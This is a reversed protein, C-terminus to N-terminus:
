SPAHLKEEFMKRDEDKLENLYWGLAYDPHRQCRRQEEPVAKVAAADYWIEWRDNGNDEFMRLVPTVGYVFVGTDELMVLWLMDGPQPVQNMAELKMIEASSVPLWVEEEKEWRYFLFWSKVSGKGQGAPDSGRMFYMWHRM